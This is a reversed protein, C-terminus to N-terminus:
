YRFTYRLSLVVEGGRSSFSRSLPDVDFQRNVVLFLDQGAQPNYRLRSNIGASHSVNDYQMLNLWSWKSNFAFDARLLYLRTVFEGEPLSVDNYEYGARLYLHPNPRWDIGGDIKLLEGGYFDGTDIDLSVAVRREFASELFFQVRDFEYRGPAIVVGPHIEFPEYLVEEIRKLRLEFVDGAQTEGTPLELTFERTEPSGDAKRIDEFIAKWGIDRIFRANPSWTHSLEAKRGEIGSRNVFGVSPNFHEGIVYQGLEASWGQSNPSEIKWGWADEKGRVGETSSRQYWATGQVTRGTLLRTNRYRFDAGVLRNDLDSLPNGDTVIMGVSSEELVNAAVRGVFINSKGVGAYEDQLVDLLGINWRGIKGTVKAGAVLDVPEGEESLGIRRSFFPRGNEELGGFSFIDVDQNFFQRKEPFFLSFRTLNVQREDVETASFDTNVTLAATVSPTVKYYVDLSPEFDNGEGGAVFDRHRRAALAPVVDLGRGQHIGGICELTGSAGPNISRDFSSWAIEEKKRSVTRAVNFGWEQRNEDFSITKFPIAVEATWGQDDIRAEALWIGDWDRNIETQTEYLGDRRIGNPNVQFWFGSRRTMFPDLLFEIADDFRLTQGQVLQRAIIKEPESDYLRAGLYLHDEDYLLYFESRESPVGHDVPDFQHLDDIRLAAGWAEDDLAGDIEPPDGTRQICASPYDEPLDTGAAQAAMGFPLLCALVLGAKAPGARTM